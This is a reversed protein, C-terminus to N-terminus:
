GHLWNLIEQVVRSEQGRYFHEAASFTVLHKPACASEFWIRTHQLPTAFDNDATIILKPLASRAMDSYDHHTLTPGITVLHSIHANGCLRAVVSAGFSYGIAVTPMFAARGLWRLAAAADDIRGSDDPAEGSNWFAEMVSASPAAGGFRFRLTLFGHEALGRGVARVVNNEIRGGMLPHPGVILASRQPCGAFPYAIVGRLPSLGGPIAVTEELIDCPECSM